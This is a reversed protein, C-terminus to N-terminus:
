KFWNGVRGLFKEDDSKKEKNDDRTIFWVIIGFVLLVIVTAVTQDNLSIGLTSELWGAQWWGAAHGFIYVVVIFSIIAVWGGLSGGGWKTSGGLLGVLILFMLVAVIVLSVGPIAKQMIEVVPTVVIVMLSIALAVVVSINKREGLIKSKDLIAFLIAFVLLFPVIINFVGMQELNQLGQDLVGM